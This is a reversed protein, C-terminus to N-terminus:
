HSQFTSVGGPRVVIPKLSSYFKSGESGPVWAMQFLIYSPPRKLSWSCCLLSKPSPVRRTRSSSTSAPPMLQQPWQPWFPAGSTVTCLLAVRWLYALSPGHGVAGCSFCPSSAQGGSSQEGGQTTSTELAPWTSKEELRRPSSLLSGPQAGPDAGVGVVVKREWSLIVATSERM